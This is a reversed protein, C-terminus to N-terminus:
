EEERVSDSRKGVRGDEIVRKGSETDNRIKDLNNEGGAAMEVLV